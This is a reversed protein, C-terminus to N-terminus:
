IPQEVVWAALAEFDRCAPSEPSYKLIPTQSALAEEIAADFHIEIPLLEDGLDRTLAVAVDRCLVRANNMRNLLYRGCLSPNTQMAEGFWRAMAPLTVFSAADPLLVCLAISSAQLAQPLYATGGPATDLIVISGPALELAALNKQLWEPDDDLQRELGRRDHDSLTGFPLCDVGYPGRYAANVWPQNLLSQVALGDGEALPMQHHLRAANQPDVDVLLVTQGAAALAAALNAAVTTKGVGGKPSVVSVVRYSQSVTM